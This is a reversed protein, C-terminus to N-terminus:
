GSSRQFVRTAETGRIPRILVESGDRLVTQRGNAPDRPWSRSGTAGSPQGGALAWDAVRGALRRLPWRRAARTAPPPLHPGPWRGPRTDARLEDRRQDALAAQLHYNFVQIAGKM